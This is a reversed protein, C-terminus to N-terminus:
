SWLLFGSAAAIPLRPLSTADDARGRGWLRSVSAGLAAKPWFVPAAGHSLQISCGGGLPCTAPELGAPTVLDMWTLGPIPQGMKDGFTSAPLGGPVNWRAFPSTAPQKTCTQRTPGTTYGTPQSETKWGTHVRTLPAEPPQSSGGAISPKPSHFKAMPPIVAIAPGGTKGLNLPIVRTAGIARM